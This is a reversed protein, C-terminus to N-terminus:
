IEGSQLNDIFTAYGEQGMWFKVLNDVGRSTLTAGALADVHYEIGAPPPVKDVTIQLDGSEDRLKKGSWLAKWRPNDVEAGLGPTEAHQYFQLGFIDNGNSELAIFGYLTSWLGYGHVPLIIKDISGDEKRLLYVTKYNSQRGIGAPDESLARSLEPDDAAANDDFTAPDFQDAFQGSKLDLVHPEFAQFAEGVNQGPEYLGAVQLINIRKDRLRNEDQIPRLSVAAFSVVMSAFLCLSVAVFLTKPISDAPLELFRRLLGKKGERQPSDDAM